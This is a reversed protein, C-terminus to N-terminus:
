LIVEMIQGYPESTVEEPFLRRLSLIFADTTMSNIVEIHMARSSLCTFLVCYRKLNSRKFRIIYQGFVDIRCHTFPPVELTREIPLEGM